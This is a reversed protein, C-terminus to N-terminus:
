AALSKQVLNHLAELETIIDAQRKDVYDTILQRASDDPFTRIGIRYREENLEANVNAVIGRLKGVLRREQPYRFEVGVLKDIGFNRPAYLPAKIYVGFGGESIDIATANVVMGNSLVISFNKEPEVRVLNRNGASGSMYQFNHLTATMEIFNVQILNGLVPFPLLEHKVLTQGSKKICLAQYKHIKFVVTGHGVKIFEAEFAIPVGKYTNYLRVKEGAKALDIFLNLVENKM